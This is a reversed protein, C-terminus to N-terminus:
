ILKTTIREMRRSSSSNLFFSISGSMKSYFLNDGFTAFALLSYNVLAPFAIPLSKTIASVVNKKM